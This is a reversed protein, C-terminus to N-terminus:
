PELLTENVGYLDCIRRASSSCMSAFRVGEHLVYHIDVDYVIYMQICACREQISLARRLTTHLTDAVQVTHRARNLVCNIVFDM